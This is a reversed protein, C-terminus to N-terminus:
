LILPLSCLVYWFSVYKSFLGATAVPSPKIGPDSNRREPGPYQALMEEKEDGLGEAHNADQCDVPQVDIQPEAVDPDDM